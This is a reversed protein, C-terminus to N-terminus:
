ATVGADTTSTAQRKLPRRDTPFSAPDQQLRWISAQLNLPDSTVYNHWSVVSHVRYLLRVLPEGPEVAGICIAANRPAINPHWLEPGGLQLVELVSPRRKLYDPPFRIHLQIPLDQVLEPGSSGSIYTSCILRAEYRDLQLPQLELRNSEAAFQMAEDHQAHLYNAFVPHHRNM